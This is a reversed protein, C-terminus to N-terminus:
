VAAVLRQIVVSSSTANGIASGEVSQTVSGSGLEPTVATLVTQPTSISMAGGDPHNLILDLRVITENIFKTLLDIDFMFASASITNSAMGREIFAAINSGLEYQPSVSNDNTYAFTTFGGQLTGSEMISSDIDAFPRSTTAALFTSGTPPTDSITQDLGVLPLSGTVMANVDTSLSFGSFEVGPTLVYKDVTGCKGKLWTLVSITKCLNGTTLKDATEYNTTAAAEDELTGDKIGAGTIVLAAVATAIFPKNNGGTLSDFQILDGVVVGDTIFSGTARTFTKATAVVSVTLATEAIGAVWDSSMANAILDDQSGYSLEFAFEGSASSGGLRISTIERSGDLEESQLTEKTLAPIGGTNRLPKWAPTTPTVGPTSEAIYYTASNSGSFPQVSM